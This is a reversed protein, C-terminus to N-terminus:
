LRLLYFMTNIRAKEVEKDVAALDRLPVFSLPITAPAM